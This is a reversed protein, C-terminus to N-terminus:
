AGVMKERKNEKTRPIGMMLFEVCYHACVPVLIMGVCIFAAFLVFESDQFM